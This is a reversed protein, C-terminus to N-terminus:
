SMLAEMAVKRVNEHVKTVPGEIEGIDNPRSIHFTTSVNM